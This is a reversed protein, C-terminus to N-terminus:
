ARCSHRCGRRDGSVEGFVVADGITGADGNVGHDQLDGFIDALLEAEVIIARREICEPM